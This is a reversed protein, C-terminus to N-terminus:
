RQLQMILNMIKSRLMNELIPISAKIEPSIEMRVSTDKPQIGAIIVKSPLKNLAKLLALLSEVDFEHYSMSFLLNSNESKVEIIDERAVEKVFIEGPKLGQDVADVIVLCDVNEVDYILDIISTGYWRTKVNEPLGKDELLRIVHLGLADDGKLENGVGAVLILPEGHM